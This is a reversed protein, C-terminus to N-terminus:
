PAAHPHAELASLDFGLVILKARIARDDKLTLAHQRSLAWLYQRSGESVIATPQSMWWGTRAGREACGPNPYWLVQYRAGM